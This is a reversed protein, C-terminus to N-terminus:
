SGRRHVGLRPGIEQRLNQFWALATRHAALGYDLNKTQFRIIPLYEEPIQLTAVQDSHGELGSLAAEFLRYVKKARRGVHVEDFTM